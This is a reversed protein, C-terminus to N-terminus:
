AVLIASWGSPYGNAESGIVRVPCWREDEISEELQRGHSQLAGANGDVVRRTM